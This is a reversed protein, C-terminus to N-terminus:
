HYICPDDVTYNHGCVDCFYEWTIFKTNDDNTMVELGYEDYFVLYARDPLKRKAWELAEEETAVVRHVEKYKGKPGETFYDYLVVEIM